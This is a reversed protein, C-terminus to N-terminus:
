STNSDTDLGRRARGPRAGTGWGTRKVSPQHRTSTQESLFSSSAPQQHSTQESLFTSSAPPQGDATVQPPPRGYTLTLDINRGPPQLPVAARLIYGRLAILGTRRRTCTGSDLTTYLQTHVDDILKRMVYAECELYM